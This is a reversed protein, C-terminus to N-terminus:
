EPQRPPRQPHPHLHTGGNKEVVGMMGGVWLQREQESLFSVAVDRSKFRFVACMGNAVSRDSQDVVVGRKRRFLQLFRNSADAVLLHVGVLSALPLAETPKRAASDPYWVFHPMLVEEGCYNGVHDEIRFFRLHPHGNRVHKCLTSGRRLLPMLEKLPRRVIGKSPEPPVDLSLTTGETVITTDVDLARNLVSARNTSPSGLRSRPTRTATVNRRAAPQQPSRTRLNASQSLSNDLVQVRQPPSRQPPPEVNERTDRAAKERQQAVTRTDCDNSVGVVVCSVDPDGDTFGARGVGAAIRAHRVCRYVDVYFCQALGLVDEPTMTEIGRLSEQPEMAYQNKLYFIISRVNDEHAPYPFLDKPRLDGNHKKPLASGGNSVGQRTASNVSVSASSTAIATSRDAPLRDDVVGHNRRSDSGFMPTSNHNSVPSQRRRGEEEMREKEERNYNGNGVLLNEYFSEHCRYPATDNEIRDSAACPDVCNRRSRSELADNAELYHYDNGEVKWERDNRDDSAPPAREARQWGVDVGEQAGTRSEPRRCFPQHLPPRGASASVTSAYHLRLPERHPSMVGRSDFERRPSNREAHGVEEGRRLSSAQDPADDGWSFLGGGSVNKETRQERTPGGTEGGAAGLYRRLYRVSDDVGAGGGGHSARQGSSM